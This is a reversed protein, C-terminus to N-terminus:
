CQYEMIHEFILKSSKMKGFPLTWTDIPPLHDLGEIAERIDLAKGECNIISSAQPRGFQRDGINITPTGLWPAEYIGCSSNGIIAKSHALLDIFESRPMNSRASARFINDRTYKLIESWILASGADMNPHIFTFAEDKPLARLLEHIWFQGPPHVIVTYGYPTYDELEPLTELSLLGINHVNRSWTKKIVNIAYQDCYVFHLDALQSICNRYGNDLSGETVEGGSIHAVPIGQNHCCVAMALTEYRDGLLVMLDLRQHIIQESFQIMALGFSKSVSSQTDMGMLIESIHTIPYEIDTASIGYERSFHTGSVFLYMNIDSAVHLKDIVPQLYGYDARTTTLIVINKM